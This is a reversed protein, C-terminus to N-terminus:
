RGYTKWAPESGTAPEPFISKPPVAPAAAPAAAAPAAAAPAAGLKALYALALPPVSDALQRTRGLQDTGPVGRQLMGATSADTVNALVSRLPALTSHLLFAVFALVVVGLVLGIIALAEGTSSLALIMITAEM